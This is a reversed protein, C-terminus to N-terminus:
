GAFDTLTLTCSMIDNRHQQVWVKRDAAALSDLWATAAGTASFDASVGDEYVPGPGTVAATSVGLRHYFWRGFIDNGSAPPVRTPDGTDPSPCQPVANAALATRFAVPDLQSANDWGHSTLGFAVRTVGHPQELLSVDVDQQVWQTEDLLGESAGQVLSINTVVEPLAYANEAAVCVNSGGALPGCVPRSLSASPVLFQQPTVLMPIATVAAVAVLAIATRRRSLALCALLAAVAVALSAQAAEFWLPRAYRAELGLSYPTIYTLPSPYTAYAVAAYLSYPGLLAVFPSVVRPLRVGSALGFSVCLAVFAFMLAFYTPRLAGATAVASTSVISATFGGMLAALMWACCVAWIAVFTTISNRVATARLTRLGASRLRAGTLAACLSALGGVLPWTTTYSAQTQAWSGLWMYSEQQMFLSALAVIVVAFGGPVVWGTVRLAARM